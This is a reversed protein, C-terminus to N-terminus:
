NQALIQALIPNWIHATFHSKWSIWHEKHNTEIQIKPVHKSVWTLRASLSSFRPASIMWVSPPVLAVGWLAPIWPSISFTGKGKQGWMLWVSVTSIFSVCTIDPVTFVCSCVRKDCFERTFRNCQLRLRNIDEKIAPKVWTPPLTRWRWPLSCGLWTRKQFWHQWRVWPMHHRHQLRPSIIRKLRFWYWTQIELQISITTTLGHPKASMCMGSQIHPPVNEGTIPHSAM